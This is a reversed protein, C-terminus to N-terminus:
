NMLVAQSYPDQAVKDNCKGEPDGRSMRGRSTRYVGRSADVIPNIWMKKGGSGVSRTTMGLGTPHYNVYIGEWGHHEPLAFIEHMIGIDKHKSVTDNWWNWADRHIPSLAFNHIDEVSRWYSITAAENGTSREGASLWTSMGLFGSEERTDELQVLMDRFRAGVEKYGDAFMGMPSNSRAGLIMVARPGNESPNGRVVETAGESPYAVSWKGDIVGESWVNKKLGFHMMFADGINWALIALVPFAIYSRPFVFSLLLQIAGGMLLWTSISFNDKLLAIEFGSYPGFGTKKGSGINGAISYQSRPKQSSAPFLTKISM